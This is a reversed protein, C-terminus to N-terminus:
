AVDDSIGRIVWLEMRLAPFEDAVHITIAGGMEPWHASTADLEFYLSRSSPFRIEAPATSLIRLQIGPVLNRVMDKILAPPAVKVVSPFRQRLDDPHLESSVCLIFQNRRDVLRTDSFRGGYYGFDLYDLTIQVASEALVHGLSRYLSRLVPAFSAYQDDHQYGEFRPASNTTKGFTGFEGAAQACLLYLSYPHVPAARALEEFVPAYRNLAMLTSAELFHEAAALRGASMTRGAMAKSRVLIRSFLDRLMDRYFEHGQAVLMTPVFAESLVVSGSKDIQAIEGIPIVTHGNVAADGVLLETRLLGVEVDVPESAPDTVDRLSLREVAFTAAPDPEEARMFECQNALRMPVGLYLRQGSMAGSVAVASPLSDGLESSFFTGDPFRGICRTLAIQGQRLAAEDLSIDVFGWGHPAVADVALAAEGRISRELQQFHHPQLFTGQGWFIRSLRSM